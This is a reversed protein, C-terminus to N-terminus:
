IGKIDQKYARSVSRGGVRREGEGAGIVIITRGVSPSSREGKFAM